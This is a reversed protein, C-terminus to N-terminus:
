KIRNMFNTYEESTIKNLEKLRDLALEMYKNIGKGCHSLKWGILCEGLGICQELPYIEKEELEIVINEIIQMKENKKLDKWM